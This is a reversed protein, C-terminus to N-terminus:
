NKSPFAFTKTGVYRFFWVPVKISNNKQDPLSVFPGFFGINPWFHWNQALNPLKQVLFGKKKPSPTFSKTGEYWPVLLVGRKHQFCQGILSWNAALSFFICNQNLNPCNTIKKTKSDRNKDVTLLIGPAVIKVNPGGWFIKRKLAIPWKRHSVGTKPWDGIALILVRLKPGHDVFSPPAM